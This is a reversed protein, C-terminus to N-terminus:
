LHFQLLLVSSPALTWYPPIAGAWTGPVPRSTSDSWKLSDGPGGLPCGSGKLNLHISTTTNVNTFLISLTKTTPDVTAVAYFGGVPASEKSRVVKSGLQSLIESFLYYAPRATGGSKLLSGPYSSKLDYFDLNAMRVNLGQVVETALYPVQSFGSMYRGYAGTGITGVSGSGVETAFIRINKCSPCGAKIAALDSPVRVSLSSPSTLSAYFQALTGTQANDHGAPYVHIGVGSLNPGNLAVTAEIWDAEHWAGTGVGPLGIIKASPDVSRIAIVYSQVLKAYGAPTINSDQLPTWLAWPIGFHTWQAPENGIEWYAPHFHLTNEVYSVIEKALAPNDIEGPLGMIARCHVSKCWSVFKVESTPPAFSLGNGLSMSNNIPDYLDSARGGPWRVYELPTARIQSATSNNFVEFADGNVGWFTYPVARYTDNPQVSFNADVTLNSVTHNGVTTNGSTLNEPPYAPPPSIGVPTYALAPAPLSTACLLLVLGAVVLSPAIRGAWTFRSRVGSAGSQSRYM